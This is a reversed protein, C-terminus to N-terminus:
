KTAYELTEGKASIWQAEVFLANAQANLYSKKSQVINDEIITWNDYTIFGTSYQAEAIKSREENAALSEKALEVSEVAERFSEWAQELGLVTGDETSRLQAENQRLVSEAKSLQAKRLGGEFIPMSVVLQANLGRDAPPWENGDKNAGAKLSLQPYYSGRQAKLAFDASDRKAAAGKVSPHEKAMAKFDPMQHFAASVAFAGNVELPVFERRGMAKNLQRQALVVNRVAQELDFKAQTMSAQTSLLAGRHELGAKYRLSILKLEDERIKAIDQTVRILEQAKLLNVFATRLQLRVDVSSFRYSEQAATINAVAAKIDNSSQFGDFILLAGSIGYSYSDTTTTKQSGAKSQAEGASANADFQPFVGSVTIAKSARAQYVNEGAAVLDPNNKAAEKVCNEWSLVENSPSAADAAFSVSCLLSFCATFLILKKM